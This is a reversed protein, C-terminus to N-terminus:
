IIIITKLTGATVDHVSVLFGSLEHSNIKNKIFIEDCKLDKSLFDVVVKM